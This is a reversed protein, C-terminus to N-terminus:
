LDFHFFFMQDFFSLIKFLFDSSDNTIISFRFLVTKLFYSIGIFWYLHQKKKLDCKSLQARCHKGINIVIFTEHWSAALYVITRRRFGRRTLRIIDHAVRERKEVEIEFAFEFLKDTWVFLVLKKSGFSDLWNYYVAIRLFYVLLSIQLM